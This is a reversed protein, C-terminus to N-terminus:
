PRTRFKSELNGKDGWKFDVANEGWFQLNKCNINGKEAIFTTNTHTQLVPCVEVQLPVHGVIRAHGADPEGVVPDPSGVHQQVVTHM